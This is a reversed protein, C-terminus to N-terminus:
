AARLRQLSQKAVEQLSAIVQPVVAARYVALCDDPRQLRLLVLPLDELARAAHRFPSITGSSM